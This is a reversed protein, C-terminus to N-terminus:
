ASATRGRAPGHELGSRHCTLLTRTCSTLAGCEPRPRTSQMGVSSAPVQTAVTRRALGGPDYENNLRLTWYADSGEAFSPLDLEEIGDIEVGEPDLTAKWNGRTPTM